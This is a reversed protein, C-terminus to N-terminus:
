INCDWGITQPGLWSLCSAYTFAVDCVVERGSGKDHLVSVLSGFSGGRRSQTLYKTVATVLLFSVCRTIGHGLFKNTSSYNCYKGLCLKIQLTWLMKVLLLRRHFIGLHGNVISCVTNMTQRCLPMSSSLPFCHGLQLVRSIVCSLLPCWVCFIASLMFHWVVAM